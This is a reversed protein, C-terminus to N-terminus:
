REYTIVERYGHWTALGIWPMVILLGVMCTAFGIATLAVITGAWIIMIKLNSCVARVSCIMASITDVEKDLMMPISWASVAFVIVAFVFGVSFYSVVYQWNATWFLSTWLHDLEPTPGDFFLAFMFLSMRFWFFVLITLLVAFLSLAPKNQRWAVASQRLSIRRSGHEMQRAIDYIGLALFPGGLLFITAFTIVYEPRRDFYFVLAYGMLVFVSGYALSETPARWLDRWGLRLWRRISEPAVQHVVPHDRSPLYIMEM